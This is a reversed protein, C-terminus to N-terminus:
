TGVAYRWVNLRVDLTEAGAFYEPSTDALTDLVYVLDSWMYRAECMADVYGKLLINGQKSQLGFDIIPEM